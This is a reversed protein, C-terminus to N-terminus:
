GLIVWEVLRDSSPVSKRFPSSPPHRGAADHDIAERMNKEGATEEAPPLLPGM